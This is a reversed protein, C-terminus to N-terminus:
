FILTSIFSIFASHSVYDYCHYIINRIITVRVFLSKVEEEKPDEEPVAEEWQDEEGKSGERVSDQILSFTSPHIFCLHTWGDWQTIYSFLM